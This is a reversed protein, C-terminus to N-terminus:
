HLSFIYAFITLFIGILALSNGASKRSPQKLLLYFGTLAFIICAIATIDILLIWSFGAHRGKHLDNLLSLYGNFEAELEVTSENFDVLASAYGAPRKFDLEAILEDTDFQYTFVSAKVDHESTLWNLFQQAIKEQEAPNEPLTNYQLLTPITLTEQRSQKGAHSQLLDPHNLTIGTVAFFLLLVLVLMSSYTHLLRMFKSFAPGQGFNKMFQM